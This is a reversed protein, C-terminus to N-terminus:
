VCMSQIQVASGVGSAFADGRRNAHSIVQTDSITLRLGDLVARADGASHGYLVAIDWLSCAKGTLPHRDSILVWKWLPALEYPQAPFACFAVPHTLESITSLTIPCVADSPGTYEIM